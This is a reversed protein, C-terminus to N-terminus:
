GTRKTITALFFPHATGNLLHCIVCSHQADYTDYLTKNIILHKENHFIYIYVCSYNYIYIYVRTYLWITTIVMAWPQLELEWSYVWTCRWGSEAWDAGPGTPRPFSGDIPRFEQHAEQATPNANCPWPACSGWFGICCAVQNWSTM